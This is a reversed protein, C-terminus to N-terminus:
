DDAHGKWDYESGWSPKDGNMYRAAMSRWFDAVRNQRSIFPTNFYTKSSPYIYELQTQPYDMEMIYHFADPYIGMLRNIIDKVEDYASYDESYETWMDLYDQAYKADDPYREELASKLFAGIDGEPETPIDLINKNAAHTFQEPKSMEDWNPYISYRLERRKRNVVQSAYRYEDKLYRPVTAGGFEVPQSAKANVTPMIRRLERVRQYLIRRNNGAQIIREKEAKVSTRFPVYDYQGSAIMRDVARNYGRVANELMRRQNANWQIGYRRKSAM